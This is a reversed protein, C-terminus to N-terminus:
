CFKFLEFSLHHYLDFLNFHMKQNHSICVSCFVGWLWMVSQSTGGEGGVGCGVGRGVWVM